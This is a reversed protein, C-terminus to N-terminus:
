SSYITFAVANGMALFCLESGVHELGPLFVTVTDLIRSSNVHQTVKNELPCFQYNLQAWPEMPFRVLNIRVSVDLLGAPSAIVSNNM